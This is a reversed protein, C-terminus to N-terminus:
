TEFYSKAYSAQWAAVDKYKRGEGFVLRKAARSCADKADAPLDNYSGSNSTGSSGSGPGGGGEVRNTSGRRSNDKVNFRKKTAEAVIELREAAPTAASIEGTAVLQNQIEISAARMVPDANWWPNDKLFQQFVPNQTADAGNGGGTQTHTAITTPKVKAKALKDTTEQHERLLALERQVDGAERADTIQVAIEEITRAANQVTQERNTEQIAELAAANARNIRELETLRTNLADNSEQLNRNSAKILPLYEEGKKVYTEADTWREPAGRFEEKPKWGMKTAEATYDRQTGTDEDAM